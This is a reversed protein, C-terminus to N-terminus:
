VASLTRPFGVGCRGDRWRSLEFATANVSGIFRRGEVLRIGAPSPHGKEGLNRLFGGM